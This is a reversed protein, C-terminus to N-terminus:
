VVDNNASAAVPMSAMDITPLFFLALFCPPSAAPFVHANCVHQQRPFSILVNADYVPESIRPYACRKTLYSRRASLSTGDKRILNPFSTYFLFVFIIMSKHKLLTEARMRM